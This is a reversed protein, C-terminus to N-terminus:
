KAAGLCYVTGRETGIVLYGNAVAPSASIPGDLKIRRVEKGTALELVYLNGDHSGVYVRGGAIVPSSDVKGDTAFDWGPKGTARDLAYVRKDRSGTVALTETLAASAFFPQPRKPSQFTWAVAPKALDVAIVDNTMTGIVLRGNRVAASAGTQGELPVSSLEKGTAADLVHLTSDCGAAFTKGGAVAPTGLVPGGAVAFKWRPKGDVQALAHLTEDTTGFLVLDGTFNVGSSVESETNFKWKEKGTAADVCFLIGDVSGAFVHGGRVGVATKIAGTKLKWKELGTRLDYAHLHDDYAGVFATGAAIAATGEVTATNPDGGTKAQWRVVLKDPLSDATVGTQAADGRFVPWDAAALPSRPQTLAGLVTLLLCVLPKM